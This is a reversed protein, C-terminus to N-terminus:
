CFCFISSPIYVINKKFSGKTAKKIDTGDVTENTVIYSKPAVGIYSGNTTLFEPKLLGPKRKSEPKQDMVFYNHCEEQFKNKMNPKVINQFCAMVTGAYDEEFNKPLNESKSLALFM